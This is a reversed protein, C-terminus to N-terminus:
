RATPRQWINRLEITFSDKAKWQRAIQDASEVSWYGDDVREYVGPENKKWGETRLVASLSSGDAPYFRIGFNTVETDDTPVRFILRHNPKNGVRAVTFRNHAPFICHTVKAKSRNDLCLYSRIGYWTKECGVYPKKFAMDPYGNAHLFPIHTQDVTNEATQLWNCYEGPRQSAHSRTPM